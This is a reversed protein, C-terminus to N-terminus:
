RAPAVSVGGQGGAPGGGGGEAAGHGAASGPVAGAPPDRDRPEAAIALEALLLDVGDDVAGATRLIQARAFEELADGRRRLKDVDSQLEARDREALEARADAKGARREAAIAYVAIALAASALGGVVAIAAIM